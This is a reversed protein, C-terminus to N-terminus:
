LLEVRNRGFIKAKYLAEDCRSFLTKYTDEESAKTLGISVTINGAIPHTLTEIKCRLMEVVKKAKLIDTESMMLVFEEGGWRAFIDTSRISHMMEKALMVLVEDGILHGFTDNFKKFHDIDILAVCLPREYRKVRLLEREFHNEFTHRNFVKTLRDHSAHHQADLRSAQLSTVDTLTIIFLEEDVHEVNDINIYFATPGESTIISVLRMDSQSEDYRKLFEEINKGYIYHPHEVFLDLFANYREFFSEKDQTYLMEWFSHSAFKITQFDTVITVNSQCNLIQELLLSQEKMQKQLSIQKSLQNIKSQLNKKHIPKLLYGNIHLELAPLTYEAESYATTFILVQDPNIKKIAQALEIGSKRPMKIDSIVIDPSHKQFLEFGEFGDNAVYLEKAYRKLAKAYGLRVEENDEVYLITATKLYDGM